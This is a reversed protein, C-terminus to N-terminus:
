GCRQMPSGSSQRKVPEDKVTFIVYDDRSLVVEHVQEEYSDLHDRMCVVLDFGYKKKLLALDRNVLPFGPEYLERYSNSLFYRGDLNGFQFVYRHNTWAALVKSFNAPIALVTACDFSKLDKIMNCLPRAWGLTHRLHLIGLASAFATLLIGIAILSSGSSRDSLLHVVIILIIPFQVYNLYREPEGLFRLQPLNSLLAAVVGGLIWTGVGPLLDLSDRELAWLIGVIWVAPYYMLTTLLLNNRIAQVISRPKHFSSFLLALSRYLGLRGTVGQHSSAITKLYMKSHEYHGRLIRLVKGRTVLLSVSFSGGVFVLISLLGWSSPFGMLFVPTIFCVSQVVFKSTIWLSSATLTGIVLWVPSHLQLSLLLSAYSVTFLFEGVGRPSLFQNRANSCNLHPAILFLSAGLIGTMFTHDANHGSVGVIAVVFFGIAVAHLLDVFISGYRFIGPDWEAPFKAIVWHLGWPYSIPTEIVFQPNRTPVRGQTRRFLHVYALHFGTDVPGVLSRKVQLRVKALV